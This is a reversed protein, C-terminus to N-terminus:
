LRAFKETATIVCAVCPWVCVCVRVNRDKRYSENVYHMLWSRVQVWGMGALGLEFRLSKVM